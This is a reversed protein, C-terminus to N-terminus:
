VAAEENNVEKMEALKHRMAAIDRHAMRRLWQDNTALLRVVARHIKEEIEEISMAAGPAPVLVFILDLRM